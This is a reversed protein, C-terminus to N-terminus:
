MIRRGRMSRKKTTVARGENFWLLVVSALIAIVGFIIGKFAGGIRSFWGTTTTETFSDQAM